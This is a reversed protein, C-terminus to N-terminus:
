GDARGLLKFTGWHIPLMPPAPHGMSVQTDAIERYARVAADPDMHVASMIWAPERASPCCCSISLVPLASHNAPVRPALRHRRRLYVSRGGAKLVWGSWLTRNRGWPTRGSFTSRRPARSADASTTQRRAIGGATSASRRRASGGCSAAWVSRRWGGPKRTAGFLADCRAAISTTTTITSLVVLDLPPLDDFAIGPRVWRRPGAFRFPSAREGVDSGDARQATGAAAAHQRTEVWTVTLTGGSARPTHFAPSSVPFSSPPPDAPRGRGRAPGDM